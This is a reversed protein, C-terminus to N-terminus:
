TESQKQRIHKPGAQTPSNKALAYIFSFLVFFFLCFFFLCVCVVVVVVFYLTLTLTTEILKGCFVYKARKGSLPFLRTKFTRSLSIDQTTKKKKLGM